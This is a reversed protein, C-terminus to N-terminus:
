LTFVKCAMNCLYEEWDAAAQLTWDEIGNFYKNLSYQSTIIKSKKENFLKNKVAENELNTLISLNGLSHIDFGSFEAMPNQPNQPYIHEITASDYSMVPLDSLNIRTSAGASYWTFHESMLSLFYKLNKNAQKPKYKLERLNMKFKDDSADAKLLSDLESIIHGTRYTSVNDRIYKAEKMFLNSLNQVNNNCVGKYRFMFKELSFVIKSFDEQPLLAAAMLLPITNDYNLYSVLVYLRNRNWPKITQNADYLWEGSTIKNYIEKGDKISNITGVIINATTENQVIDSKQIEPFFHKVLDDYMSARGIRNGTVSSYYRKFFDSIKEPKDSLIDDWNHQVSLQQSSYNPEELVELTKSKLLDGETLGMGRDNLVQFLKYATNQTDTRIFIICFSSNVLDELQKLAELKKQEDECVSAIKIIFKEIKNNASNIREHSSRSTNERNGELIKSFYTKDADSLVLKDVMQIKMNIEDRYHMYQSNLKEIRGNILESASTNSKLMEQYAKIINHVFLITTTIRQQGDILIEQQRSSGPVVKDVCVIGGFFHQIIEGNCASIYMKEVDSIFDDVQEDEWAYYRQYKPVEFLFNSDFVKGITTYSPNIDM